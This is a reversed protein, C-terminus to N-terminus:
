TLGSVFCYLHHEIEPDAIKGPTIVIISDLFVDAFVSRTERAQWLQPKFCKKMEIGEPDIEV